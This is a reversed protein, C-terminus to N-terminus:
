RMKGMPNIPRIPGVPDGCDPTFHCVESICGGGSRTCIRQSLCLYVPTYCDRTVPGCLPESTPCYLYGVSRVCPLFDTHPCGGWDFTEPRPECPFSRTQFLEGLEGGWAGGPEPRATGELNRQAIPGALFDAQVEHSETRSYTLTAAPDVWLVTGQDEDLEKSHLIAENPVDVYTTLDADFWLRTANSESAPGPFGLLKTARRPPKSPDSALAEVLPHHPVGKGRGSRRQEAM